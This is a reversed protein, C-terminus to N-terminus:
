WLAVQGVVAVEPRRTRGIVPVGALRVAWRGDPLPVLETRAERAQSRAIEAARERTPALYLIAPDTV